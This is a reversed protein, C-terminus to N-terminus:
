PRLPLTVTVATGRGPESKIDLAGGHLDILSKTIALGLGWGKPARGTALHAQVFPKTMDAIKDPAIGSGTDAVTVHLQQRSARASLTITGGPGTFKIANALLNLLIQKVARRDAHVPPLGGAVNDILEITQKAAAATVLSLCERAMDGANLDEKTLPQKGAEIASLDLIDNVLSLLHHGSTHIDRAYERAKEPGGPFHKQLSLMEAFGIIANLPTRLEHSMTALFESKARNAVEAKAKATLLAQEARRRQTIDRLVVAFLNGGELVLKSVSASAPFETGDKRLGTIDQRQDMQRYADGSRDFGTVHRGHGARFREPILIDLPRGVVEDATYGFIRAAGHNFLQITMDPGITIVGEPATELVDALRAQSEELAAGFRKIETIDTRIGVYGGDSLRSDSCLVWRGGRLQQEHEKHGENFQRLRNEIWQDVDKIPQADQGREAAIRVVDDLLAGPVLIDDNWPYFERYRRNCYVLRRNSDYYIFGDAISEIADLLRAEARQREGIEANLAQNVLTLEATREAVRTELDAHARELALAMQKRETIDRLVGVIRRSAAGSQGIAAAQSSLHRISGDPRVIRYEIDYGAEGRALREAATMVRDLDDPHVMAAFTQRQGDFGGPALGFIEETRADWARSQDSLNLDYTGFHAGRLALMLRQQDVQPQGAKAAARKPKPTRHAQNNPRRETM